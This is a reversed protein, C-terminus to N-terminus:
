LILGDLILRVGKSDWDAAGTEKIIIKGEGDIIYNTPINRDFLAEPAKMRPFFVPLDLSKKELFSVVVEPNENTILIFNVKHGYYSYLKEISPLEAICPPCWTAWYSIFAVQGKGIELNVPIGNLDTLEYSFPQLRVQDEDDLKSPSFVFIKVRNLAVQIPTRTQPVILLVIFLAFFLNGLKPKKRKM